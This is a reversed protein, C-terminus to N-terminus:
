KSLFTLLVSLLLSNKSLGGNPLFLKWIKRIFHKKQCSKKATIQKFFSCCVSCSNKFTWRQIYVTKLNKQHFIKKQHFSKKATIQKSFTLLVNLLLSKKFGVTSYLFNEIKESTINKLRCSKKATIQKFIHAVCQAFTLIKYDM